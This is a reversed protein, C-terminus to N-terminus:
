RSAAQDHVWCRRAPPLVGQDAQTAAPAPPSAADRPSSRRGAGGLELQHAPQGLPRPEVPGRKARSASRTSLRDPGPRPRAWCGSAQGRRRGRRKPGGGVSGASTGRSSSRGPRRRHASRAAARREAPRRRAGRRHAAPQEGPGRRELEGTRRDGRGGYAPRQAPRAVDLAAAGRPHHEDDLREVLRQDLDPRRAHLRAGGTRQRPNACRQAPRRRAAATRRGARAPGAHASRTPASRTCRTTAAPASAGGRQDRRDEPEVERRGPTRSADLRAPLRQGRRRDVDRAPHVGHEVDPDGPRAAGGGHAVEGGSSAARPSWPRAVSVTGAGSAPSPRRAPWRAPRPASARRSGQARVVPPRRGGTGLAQGRVAGDRSASSRTTSAQRSRAPRRWSLRPLTLSATVAAVRSRRADSTCTPAGM